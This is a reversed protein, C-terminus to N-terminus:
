DNTIVGGIEGKSPVSAGPQQYLLGELTVINLGIEVFFVGDLGSFRRYTSADNYGMILPGLSAKVGYQVSTESQYANFHFAFFHSEDLFIDLYSAQWSNDFWQRSYFYKSWLKQKWEFFGANLEPSGDLWAVRYTLIPLFQAWDRMWYNREVRRQLDLEVLSSHVQTGGQSGFGLVYSKAMFWWQHNTNEQRYDPRRWVSRSYKWGLGLIAEYDDFSTLLGLQHSQFDLSWNTKQPLLLFDNNEWGTRDFYYSMGFKLGSYEEQSLFSMGISQAYPYGYIDSNELELPSTEPNFILLHSFRLHNMSHSSIAENYQLAQYEALRSAQSSNWHKANVKQSHSFSVSIVLSILIVNFIKNM